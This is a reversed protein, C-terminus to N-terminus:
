PDSSSQENHDQYGQLEYELCSKTSISLHSALYRFLHAELNTFLALITSLYPIIGTQFVM